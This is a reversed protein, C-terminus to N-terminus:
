AGPLYRIVSANDHTLVEFRIIAIPSDHVLNPYYGKLQEFADGGDEYGDERAVDDPIIGAVVFQTRATSRLLLAVGEPFEGYFVDGLEFDHSGARYSRLSIKKVGDLIAAFHGGSFVLRKTVAM